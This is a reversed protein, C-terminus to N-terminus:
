VTEEQKALPLSDQYQSHYIEQYVQCTNMLEEHTGKGAIRGDELVIIQDAHQISATRQSVLFVTPAQPLKRLAKRLAADTAYDLASASDDLILIQPNSVLARAITLRQRQGGSLNRGGQEIMADLGGKKEVVELAQAIELAQLIQEDSADECGFKMNERISGQFLVAKQPVMGIGRRLADYTYEKVNKGFVEVVGETADYFRAILHVLSTKGSGTGGIIGVVSGSAAEFTIDELSAEADGQYKLSVRKMSVAPQDKREAKCGANVHNEMEKGLVAEGQKESTRGSAVESKNQQARGSAAESQNKQVEGSGVESQNKQVEGSGAESQNKQVEGSGAKSQNKQMEGSGAEGQKEQNERLNWELESEGEEMTSSVEFVDGIRNACAIAKNLMVILNAFKLLEVLIQSMYNYLAIVQGQTLSGAHVQLAGTWILFLIGANIVAFTVPNMLASISGAKKQIATLMTNQQQFRSCEYDEQGFARIVRVGTLNERTIGLIVDLQQQVQRMMPISLRMLFFILLSLLFIVAAFILGAQWNIVFAMVMAGAVIFPSRLFLRLTMNVGSQVQNVDSTMRTIMTSTGLRDIETYSLSQLHSFLAHRLKSAFGTAAKASFYQATVACVVGILGLVILILVRQGIYRTDREAIGIDIISAIVLPVFLEFSAELMKFLPACICEKKYPKLYILLRKM